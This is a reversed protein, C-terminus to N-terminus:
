DRAGESYFFEEALRAIVQWQEPSTDQAEDVLIHDLGQDLKYLVWETNVFNNLLSATYDILDQYDLAARRKKQLEYNEVIKDALLLLSETAKAVTLSEYATFAKEFEAKANLINAVLGPYQDKIAKTVFSKESRPQNAKTLYVDKFANVRQETKNSQRASKSREAL